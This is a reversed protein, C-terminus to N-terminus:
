NLKLYNRFKKLTLYIYRKTRVTQCWLEERVSCLMLTDGNQLVYIKFDIILPLPFLAIDVKNKFGKV